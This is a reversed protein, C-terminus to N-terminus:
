SANGVTGVVASGGVGFADRVDRQNLYFVTVINLLTWVDSVTGNSATGNLFGYIDSAVFLGTLVMALLWGTRRRLTMGIASALLLAALLVLMATAGPADRLAVLLWNMEVGLAARLTTMTAGAIVGFLLLAKLVMLGALIYVAPPLRTQRALPQASPATPPAVTTM